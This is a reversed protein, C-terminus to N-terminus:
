HYGWLNSSINWFWFREMIETRQNHTFQINTKVTIYRKWIHGRTNYIFVLMQIMFYYWAFYIRRVIERLRQQLLSFFSTQFLFLSPPLLISFAWLQATWRTIGQKRYHSILKTHITLFIIFIFLTILIYHFTHQHQQNKCTPHHRLRFSPNAVPRAWPQLSHTTRVVITNCHAISKAGM